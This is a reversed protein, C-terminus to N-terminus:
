ASSSLCIMQVLKSLKEDDISTSFTDTSFFKRLLHEKPITEGVADSLGFDILKVQHDKMMINSFSLDCHALGAKHVCQVAERIQGIYKSRDETPIEDLKEMRFGFIGYADVLAVGQIRVVSSIQSLMQLLRFENHIYNRADVHRSAMKVMPFDTESNLQRIQACVGYNVFTSKQWIEAEEPSHQVCIANNKFDNFNELKPNRSTDAWPLIYEAGLYEISM